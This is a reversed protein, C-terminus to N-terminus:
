SDVRAAVIGVAASLALVLSVAFTPLPVITYLCVILSSVWIGTCWYCTILYGLSTTPPFHRWVRNRLAETVTDQIVLRCLRYAALALVIFQLPTIDTINTM